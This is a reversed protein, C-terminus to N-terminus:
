FFVLSLSPAASAVTKLRPTAAKVSSVICTSNSSGSSTRAARIATKNHLYSALRAVAAAAAQL